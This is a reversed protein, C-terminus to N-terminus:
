HKPTPNQVPFARIPILLLPDGVKTTLLAALAEISQLPVDRKPIIFIGISTSLALTNPTDKWRKVNKWAIQVKNGDCEDIICTDDATFTRPLRATLNRKWLRPYRTFHSYVASGSFFFVVLCFVISSGSSGDVKFPNVIALITALLSVSAFVALLIWAWPRTQPHFANIAERFDEYSVTYSATIPAM